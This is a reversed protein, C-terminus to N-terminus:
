WQTNRPRQGASIAMSQRNREIFINRKKKKKKPQVMPMHFNGLWLDFEFRLQQGVV